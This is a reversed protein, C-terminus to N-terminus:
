RARATAADLLPALSAELALARRGDFLGGAIADATSTTGDIWDVFTAVARCNARYWIDGHELREGENHPAGDICVPAFAWGAAPRHGGRMTLTGHGGHADGAMAMGADGGVRVVRDVTAHALELTAAVVDDTIEHRTTHWTGFAHHLWSLPHIAAERLLIAATPTDHRVDVRLRMRPVRGIRGSRILGHVVAATELRPFAFSVALTSREALATIEPDASRGLLPKECYLRKDAWRLLHERHLETPTAIVVIDVDAFADLDHRAIGEHAAVEASRHPDRGVIAVLECGAARFTGVHTRGWHTGLIGVRWARSRQMGADYRLSM